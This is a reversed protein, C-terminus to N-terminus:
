NMAEKKSATFEVWGKWEKGFKAVYGYQECTKMLLSKNEIRVPFGNNSIVQEGREMKALLRGYEVGHTFSASQDPFSILLNM